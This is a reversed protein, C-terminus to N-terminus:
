DTMGSLAKVFNKEFDEVSWQDAALLHRFEQAAAQPRAGEARAAAILGYFLARRRPAEGGSESDLPPM